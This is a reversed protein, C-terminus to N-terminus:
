PLLHFSLFHEVGLAYSIVSALPLTIFYLSNVLEERPQIGPFSYEAKSFGLVSLFMFLTSTKIPLFNQKKM